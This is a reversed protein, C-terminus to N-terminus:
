LRSSQSAVFLYGELDDYVPEIRSRLTLRPVGYLGILFDRIEHVDWVSYVWPMRHRYSRAVHDPDYNKLTRRDSVFWVRRGTQRANTLTVKLRKMAQSKQRAEWVNSFNILSSRGEFPYDIQEISPPLYHDFSASFWEPAVVILDGPEKAAFIATAVERVNSRPREILAALEFLSCVSGYVILGVFLALTNPSARVEILEGIWYAAALLLFPVTTAITRPLLLNNFPSLLLAALLAFGAVSLFFRATAGKTHDKAVFTSSGTRKGIAKRFARTVIAIGVLTVIMAPIAVTSGKALRGVLLTELIRFLAVLVYRAVDLGGELIIAGHGAHRTQYLFSPIWPSFILLILSLSILWRRLLMSRASRDEKTITYLAPLQQGALIIWGWNHTYLMLSTTIVYVVWATRGPRILASRLSVTSLLALLTLLGYPRLQSAHEVLSPSLAALVAAIAGVRRDFLRSGASYMLPVIAAGILIPLLLLARDGSVFASWARMTVYFLPPHSEHQGLFGFMGRWSPAAIVNLFAGEDAWM